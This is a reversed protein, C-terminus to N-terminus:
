QQIAPTGHRAQTVTGSTTVSGSAGFFLIGIELSRARWEDFKRWADQADLPAGEPKM